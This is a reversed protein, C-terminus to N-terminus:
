APVREITYKGSNGPGRGYSSPITWGFKPLRKRLHTLNVRVTAHANDPGGNPDDFYLTDVLSSISVKRPYARILEDVIRREAPLMPVDTLQRMGLPEAMEVGCCPCRFTM